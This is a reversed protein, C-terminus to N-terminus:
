YVKYRMLRLVAIHPNYPICINNEANELWSSVEKWSTYEEKEKALDVQSELWIKANNFALERKGPQKILTAIAISYCAVAFGCSPNPHSLASNQRAYNAIAAIELNHGWIGLPTIRM